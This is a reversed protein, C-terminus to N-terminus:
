ELEFSVSVRAQVHIQGPRMSTSNQAESGGIEQIVNQTMMRGGRSGWWRNYWNWWGSSEERISSPRGTNQGLEGALLDAKERAAKVALKRAQDRYKRLETTRFQIGHVYNAGNELATSLLEEFRKVEKLTVMITKRVLYGLFSRRKWDSEYRPEVSLHDTQIHASRIGMAEVVEIIKKSRSDCEETATNLDKDWTEVGLTLIVEDPAVRVEADGMVSVTRQPSQARLPAASFNLFVCLCCSLVITYTMCYEKHHSNSSDAFCFGDRTDLQVQRIRGSHFTYM